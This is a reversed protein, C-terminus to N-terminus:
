KRVIQKVKILEITNSSESQGALYLFRNYSFSERHYVPLELGVDKLYHRMESKSYLVPTRSSFDMLFKEIPLTQYSLYRKGIPM